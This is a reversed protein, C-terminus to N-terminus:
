GRWLYQLQRIRNPHLILILVGGLINGLTVPLINKFMVLQDTFPVGKILFAIPILYMNAICHEFSSAVFATIPLLIAVIKSVIDKSMAALVVALVVLANCLIGRVMAPWFALAMKGEAIKVAVEGLETPRGVSGMLGTQWILWAFLCAGVFNSLYVITWNRLMQGMSFRGIISGIIMIVNGTFLEAGAIVVLVLGVGFSAGGVLRGMGEKLAVLYLHGGFSIYLGALIGLMFLQWSLTNAKKIGLSSITKSVEQPTLTPSYGPGPVSAVTSHPNQDTMPHKLAM